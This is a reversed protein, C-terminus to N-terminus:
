QRGDHGDLLGRLLFTVKKPMRLIRSRRIERQRRQRGLASRFDRWSITFATQRYIFLM